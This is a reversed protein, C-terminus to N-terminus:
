VKGPRARHRDLAPPRPGSLCSIVRRLRRQARLKWCPPVTSTCTECEPRWPAGARWAASPGTNPAGLGRATWLRGLTTSVGAAQSIDDSGASCATTGGDVAHAGCRKLRVPEPSENPARTPAAPPWVSSPVRYDLPRWESSSLSRRWPGSLALTAVGTGCAFSSRSSSIMSMATRIASSSSRVCRNPPCWRGTSPQARQSRKRGTGPGKPLYVFGSRM